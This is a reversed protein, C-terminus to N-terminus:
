LQRPSVPHHHSVEPVPATGEGDREITECGHGERSNSILGTSMLAESRQEM